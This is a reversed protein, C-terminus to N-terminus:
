LSLGPMTPSKAPSLASVTTVIGRIPNRASEAGSIAKRRIWVSETVARAWPDVLKKAVM